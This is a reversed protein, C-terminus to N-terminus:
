IELKNAELTHRDVLREDKLAYGHFTPLKPDFKQLYTALRALDVVSDPELIVLWESKNATMQDFLRFYLIKNLIGLIGSSSDFERPFGPFAAFIASFKM